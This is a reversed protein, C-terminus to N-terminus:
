ELRATRDNEGFVAEIRQGLDGIMLGVQNKDIDHHRPEVPILGARQDLFIRAEMRRRYHHKRRFIAQKVACASPHDARILIQGLWKGLLAQELGHTRMHLCGRMSTAGKPAPTILSPYSVIVMLRTKITSSEGVSRCTSLSM